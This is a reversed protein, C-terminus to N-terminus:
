KAEKKRHRKNIAADAEVFLGALKLLEVVHEGAPTLRWHTWEAFHDTHKMAEVEARPRSEILGRKFLSAASAIFSNPYPQASGYLHRDWCVGDAVASLFECMARQLINSM